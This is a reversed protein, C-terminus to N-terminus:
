LSFHEAITSLAQAPFFSLAAIILIVAFTMVGFTATDTRLTGASEPVYRKEALLGAIAVQGIIPVFRGLILVLGCSFNWFWTNDGLGEFGSGNNAASSTYEYLIEGLGHYGPNNLWGGESAVFDPAYVFLYAALATGVLIIFPHLLAVISAIKMERAEVKHGLFEPTRGVMLGSIFVAMIIFTFYNMWGVGVGGFWTNIQMNLMEMMGSLPMTSDHMGNVSGNSTVTTVVSWLGTAASGFRVEKGEMSGGNQAIGMTDIRPNGGMEQSVNIGVGMLFGVLMVGYIVSGLRKRKLYFGFAFAMAMPILLISICEVMNTLYTPNELPHSSNVGFYGGGNTGLQKIPIIAAAPGQSIQQVTGELTTVEMKGDFGMPVGEVILIFGVILSLPLLIRTVSLVLYNWFNGITQTTKAALAKMIGAMAAMGCAATIFQFLMIVFLQTFYTLGSEGSYHQLKCNVMFSICTNFAQHATQGLNGDPNLPLSGQLVLLVMGWVFWFLNVTLLARLFQKWNMEEGPNIGSLRFIMREVPRLFDLWTKEGKYVRAIYKGLPYSLGVMLVIQAAVGVLETNM